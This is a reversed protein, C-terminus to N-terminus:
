RWGRPLTPLRGWIDPVVDGGHLDQDHAAVHMARARQAAEPPLAELVEDPAKSGCSSHSCFFAGVNAANNPPFLVTTSTPENEPALPHSHCDNWPCLVSYRGQGIDAGLLGAEGFALVLLSPTDLHLAEGVSHSVVELQPLVGVLKEIDLTWGDRYQGTRVPASVDRRYGPYWAHSPADTAPDFGVTGLWAISGLATKVTAYSSRWRDVDAQSAIPFPTALPLIVRWKPATPTWGGTQHALFALGLRDLEALLIDWEGQGDADLVAQTVATVSANNRHGDISMVPAWACGEGKVNMQTAQDSHWRCFSAWDTELRWGCATQYVSPWVTWVTSVPAMSRALILAEVALARVDPDRLPALDGFAQRAAEKAGKDTPDVRGERLFRNFAQRDSLFRARAFAAGRTDIAPLTAFGSVTV